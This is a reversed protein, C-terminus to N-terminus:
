EQKKEKKQPLLASNIHPVVGGMAIIDTSVMASLEEDSAIAMSVDRPSIRAREELLTQTIALSLIESLVYEVVAATYVSALPSIREFHLNSLTREVRAVSVNLKARESRDVTDDRSGAKTNQFSSVATQAVSIAQKGLEGPLVLRTASEVVSKTLTVLKSSKIISHMASHLDDILELVVDDLVAVANSSIQVYDTRKEAAVVKLVNKIYLGFSDYSKSM